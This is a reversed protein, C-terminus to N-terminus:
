LDGDIDALAPPFSNWVCGWGDLYFTLNTSSSFNLYASVNGEGAFHVEVKLTANGSHSDGCDTQFDRSVLVDVYCDGNLDGFTNTDTAPKTLARMASWTVASAFSPSSADGENLMYMPACAAPNVSSGYASFLLDLDGDQDLDFAQPSLFSCLEENPNISNTDYPFLGSPADSFVVDSALTYYSMNTSWISSPMLVLEFSGDNTLDVM